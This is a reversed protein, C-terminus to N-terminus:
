RGIEFNTGSLEDPLVNVRNSITENDDVLVSLMVSVITASVARRKKKNLHRKLVIARIARGM